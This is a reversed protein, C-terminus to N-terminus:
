KTHKKRIALVICAIAAAIILGGIALYDARALNVGLVNFEGTNPVDPSKPGNYSYKTVATNVITGAEAGCGYGQVTINYDGVLAGHDTFPLTMDFSGSAGVSDKIDHSLAPNFLNDGSAINAAQITAKCISGGYDTRIIPDGNTEQDIVNVGLTYNNVTVTIETSANRQDTAQAEPGPLSVAVATMAGVIVLGAAGLLYKTHKKM